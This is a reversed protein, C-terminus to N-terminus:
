LLRHSRVGGNWGDSPPNKSFIRFYILHGRWSVTKIMEIMAYISDNIFSIPIMENTNQAACGERERSMNGMFLYFATYFYDFLNTASPMVAVFIVVVFCKNYYLSYIFLLFSRENVTLNPTFSACFSDM